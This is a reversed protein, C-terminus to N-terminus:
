RSRRDRGHSTGACRQMAEFEKEIIDANGAEVGSVGDAGCEISGLGIFIHAGKSGSGLEFSITGDDYGCRRKRKREQRCAEISIWVGAASMGRVCRAAPQGQAPAPIFWRRGCMAM